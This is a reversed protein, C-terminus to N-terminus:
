SVLCVGESHPLNRVQGGIRGVASKLCTPFRGWEQRSM